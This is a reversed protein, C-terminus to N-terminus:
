DSSKEFYIIHGCPCPSNLWHPCEIMRIKHPHGVDKISSGPPLFNQM